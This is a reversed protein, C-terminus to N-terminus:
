NGALCLENQRYGPDEYFGIGIGNLLGKIKAVRQEIKLMTEDISISEL